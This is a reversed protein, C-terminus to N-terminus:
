RWHRCAGCAFRASGAAALKALGGAKGCWRERRGRWPRALGRRVLIRGLDEGDVLVFAICRGFSDKRWTRRVSVESAGKVLAIAASKARQGGVRERHCKANDDTEPADINALRYRLGSARDDITDGDVVWPMALRRPAEVAVANTLTHWAFRRVWWPTLLVALAIGALALAAPEPAVDLDAPWYAGAAVTVGFIWM